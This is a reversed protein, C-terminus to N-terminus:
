ARRVDIQARWRLLCLFQIIIMMPYIQLKSYTEKTHLMILLQQASPKLKHLPYTELVYNGCKIMQSLSRHVTIDKVDPQQEDEVDRLWKKFGLANFKGYQAGYNVKVTPDNPVRCTFQQGIIM